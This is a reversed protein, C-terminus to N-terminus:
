ESRSIPWEILASYKPEHRLRNRMSTVAAKTRGLIKAAEMTTYKPSAAIDMQASTWLNYHSTASKRTEDNVNKARAQWYLRCPDCPCGLVHGGRIHQVAGPRISHSYYRSNAEYIAKRCIDCKCGYNNAVSRGHEAGAPIPKTQRAFSRRAANAARCEACRCGREYGSTTGHAIPKQSQPSAIGEKKRWRFVTEKAVGYHRAIRVDPIGSAAFAALLSHDINRRRM